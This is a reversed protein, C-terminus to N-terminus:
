QMQLAAPSFRIRRALIESFAQFLVSTHSVDNANQVTGGPERGKAFPLSGPGMGSM